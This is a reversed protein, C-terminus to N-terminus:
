KKSIPMSAQTWAMFGGKLNYAKIEAKALTQAIQASRMGSRCYVLVPNDKNLTNIKTAVQSVPIHMDNNIHGSQREKVERVDLIVLNNDNMLAVSEPVSVHTYARTYDSWIGSLLMALLIIFVIPLVPNSIAFATIETM